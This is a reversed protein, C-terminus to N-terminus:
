DKSNLVEVYIEKANKWFLSRISFNEKESLKSLNSSEKTFKPDERDPDPEISTLDDLVVEFIKPNGKFEAHIYIQQNNSKNRFRYSMSSFIYGQAESDKVFKNERLGKGDLIAQKIGALNEGEVQSEDDEDDEDINPRRITIRTIDVITWEDGMGRKALEDFFITPKKGELKDLTLASVNINKGKVIKRIVKQVEKGDGSKNGDVEILWSKDNSKTAVFTIDHEEEKIFQIKGAKKSKYKISGTYKVENTTTPIKVISKFQYDNGLSMGNNRVENYIADFDFSENSTLSFGTLISKSTQNHAMRRLENLSSYELLLRSLQKALQDHKVHFYFLGRRHLFNMLNGRHLYDNVVSELDSPTPYKIKSEEMM